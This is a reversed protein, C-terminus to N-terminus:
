FLTGVVVGLASVPGSDGLGDVAKEVKKLTTNADVYLKDENILKGVTGQGEDIKRAINDIRALTQRTEDYLDDETLLKGLTGEGSELQTTLSRLQTVAASLDTYLREDTMVKGLAGEGKEVRTIIANLRSVSNSLDRYLAPDNVLKGLTGDGRDIKGLVSDLHSFADIIPRQGRDLIEGLQGLIKEQNRDFSSLMQDISTGQRTPVAEGPSLFASEPTGFGIGLFLGGLLNTQRVEALADKKIRTEEEVYFDVRVQGEDISIKDVKGVQVGAVRVPDGPNLGVISQFYAKYHVKSSFPNWDEVLEIMVGLVILACLFFLGVKTETKVAM